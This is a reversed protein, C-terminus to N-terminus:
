ANDIDRDLESADSFRFLEAQNDGLFDVFESESMGAIEACYGISVKNRLYYALATYRRVFADTEQKSMKTDYLVEEPIKVAVSCM